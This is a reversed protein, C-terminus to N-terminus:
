RTMVWHQDTQYLRDTQPTLRNTRSGTNEFQCHLCVRSCNVKEIKQTKDCISYFTIGGGRSFSKARLLWPLVNESKPPFKKKNKSIEKQHNLLAVGRNSRDEKRGWALSSQASKRRDGTTM